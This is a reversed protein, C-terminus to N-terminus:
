VSSCSTRGKTMGEKNVGGEGSRRGTYSWFHSLLLELCEMSISGNKKIDAFVNEIVM